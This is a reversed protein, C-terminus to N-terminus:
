SDAAGQVAQRSGSWDSLWVEDEATWVPFYFDDKMDKHLHHSKFTQLTSKLLGRILRNKEARYDETWGCGRGPSGSGSVPLLAM